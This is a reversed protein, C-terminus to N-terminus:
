KDKIINLIYLFDEPIPAIFKTLVSSKPHKFEISHAHLAVRDLSKMVSKLCGTYKTHFSKIMSQGGGYNRDCLIPHGISKMHVRIQHTRGTLPFVDLYSIPPYYGKMMYTSKSYKGKDHENLCFLTRKSKDRDIFGEVIGSKQIKGWVFTRYVKKISRDEFQKSIKTHSKDNKAILIIGSTDKDLRHIVGPRLSDTQSLIKFHYMLANVLTGDENGNGPHVIMGSPKNIVIIDDDEHIIDLPINEPKIIPHSSQQEFCVDIIEGGKLVYSAKVLEDDMTIRNSNILKKIKTRSLSSLHQQLFTDIRINVNHPVTIKKKTFETKDEM